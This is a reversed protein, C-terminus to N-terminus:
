DRANRDEFIQPGRCPGGRRFENLFRGDGGPIVILVCRLPPVNEGALSGEKAGCELIRSVFYNGRLGTDVDPDPDAIIDRYGFTEQGAPNNHRRPSSESRASLAKEPESEDRGEVLGLL